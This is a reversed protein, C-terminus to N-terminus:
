GPLFEDYELVIKRMTNGDQSTADFDGPAFETPFVGILNWREVERGTEDLQIIAGSRKQAQGNLVSKFWNYLELNRTAGFELTIPSYEVKGALKVPKNDSGDEYKRVSVKANLGTAKQFYAQQLGDFEVRFRYSPRYDQAQTGM